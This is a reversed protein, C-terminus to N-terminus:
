GNLEEYIDNFMKKFGKSDLPKITAGRINNQPDSADKVSADVLRTIEAVDVRPMSAVGDRISSAVEAIQADLRAEVQRVDEAGYQKAEAVRVEKVGKLYALEVLDTALGAAVEKQPAGLNQIFEKVGGFANGTSSNGGSMLNGLLRDAPFLPTDDGGDSAFFAMGPASKVAAKIMKERPADLKESL